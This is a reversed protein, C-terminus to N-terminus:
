EAKGERRLIQVMAKIACAAVQALENYVGHEGHYDDTYIATDAEEMEDLIKDHMECYNLNDWNGWKALSRVYERDIANQIKNKEIDTIM